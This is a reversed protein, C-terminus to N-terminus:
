SDRGGQLELVNAKEWESRHVDSFLLLVQMLWFGVILNGKRSFGSHQFRTPFYWCGWVPTLRPAPVVSFRSIWFCSWTRWNLCLWSVSIKYDLGLCIGTNLEEWPSDWLIYPQLCSDQVLTFPWARKHTDARVGPGMQSCLVAWKCLRVCDQMIQLCPERPWHFTEVVVLEGCPM